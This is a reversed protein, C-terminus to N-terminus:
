RWRAPAWISGLARLLNADATGTMVEGTDTGLIPIFEHYTFVRDYFSIEEVEDLFTVTGQDHYSLVLRGQDDVSPTVSSAYDYFVLTDTGEGGSVSVPGSISLLELSDDGGEGYIVGTSDNFALHDNGSGGFLTGTGLGLVIDNAGEDGRLTVDFAHGIELREIEHITQTLGPATITGAALDVTTGTPLVPNTEVQGLRASFEDRGAGGILTDNGRSFIFGDYGDGGVLYDDGATGFFLAM